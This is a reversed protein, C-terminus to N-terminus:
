LLERVPGFSKRHHSSVGFQHLTQLHMKTPYGKHQAFGYQPYHQHLQLMTKDRETKALISAASISEIRADGSVVAYMPYDCEIFQNGDILVYDPHVSLQNLARKMALLSAQLINLEDIEEVSASAVAWSLANEKILLALKERKSESIKKSDNLGVIPHVSNLIVAAAVVPGAIPGRGAEDLGVTLGVLDDLSDKLGIKKRFLM